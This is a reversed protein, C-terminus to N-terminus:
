CLLRAKAEVWSLEVLKDVLVHHMFIIRFCNKSMSLWSLLSQM